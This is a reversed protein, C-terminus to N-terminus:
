RTVCWLVGRESLLTQVDRQATLKRYTYEIAGAKRLVAIALNVTPRRAAMMAALFDQTLVFEDTGARDHTM